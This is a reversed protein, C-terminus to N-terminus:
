RHKNKDQRLLQGLRSEPILGLVQLVDLINPEGLCKNAKVM